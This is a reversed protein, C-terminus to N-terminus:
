IPNLLIILYAQLRLGKLNGINVVIRFRKYKIKKMIGNSINTLDANWNYPVGNIILTMEYSEKDLASLRIPSGSTSLLEMGNLSECGNILLRYATKLPKDIEGRVPFVSYLLNGSTELDLSEPETLYDDEINVNESDTKKKAATQFKLVGIKSVKIKQGPKMQVVEKKGKLATVTVSGNFLEVETNGSDDVDVSFRTGYVGITASHTYVRFKKTQKFVHFVTKGRKIFVFNKKFKVITSPAVKFEARENLKVSAKQKEITKLTDGVFVPIEKKVISLGKRIIVPNGELSKVTGINNANVNITLLFLLFVFILIPKM